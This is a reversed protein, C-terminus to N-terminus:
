FSIITAFYSLHTMVGKLLKHLAEHTAGTRRTKPEADGYFVRRGLDIM